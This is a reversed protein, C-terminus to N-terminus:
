LTRQISRAHLAAIYPSIRHKDLFFSGTINAVTSWAEDLAKQVHGLHEVDMEDRKESSETMARTHIMTHIM